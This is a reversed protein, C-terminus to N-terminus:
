PLAAPVLGSFYIQKRSYLVCDRRGEDAVLVPAGRMQSMKKERMANKALVQEIKWIWARTVSECERTPLFNWCNRSGSKLGPKKPPKFNQLDTVAVLTSPFQYRTNPPKKRSPNRTKQTPHNTGAAAAIPYLWTLIHTNLQQKNSCHSRPKSTTQHDTPTTHAHVLNSHDNGHETKQGAAPAVSSPVHSWGSNHSHHLLHRCTM